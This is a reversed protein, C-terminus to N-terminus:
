AKSRVIIYGLNVKTGTDYAAALAFAYPFSLTDFTVVDGVSPLLSINFPERAFWNNVGASKFLYGIGGAYAENVFGLRDSSEV